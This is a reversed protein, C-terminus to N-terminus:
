VAGTSKLERTAASGPSDTARSSMPMICRNSATPWRRRMLSSTRLLSPGTNSATM